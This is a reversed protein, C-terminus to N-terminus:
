RDKPAKVGLLGMGLNGARHLYPGRPLSNAARDALSAAPDKQHRNRAPFM